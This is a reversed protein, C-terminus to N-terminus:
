ESLFYEEQFDQSFVQGGSTKTQLTFNAEFGEAAANFKLNKIRVNSNNLPVGNIELCGDDEKFIASPPDNVKLVSPTSIDISNAGNMAWGIKALLFAGEGQVMTQTDGRGINGIIAFASVFLGSFIVGFLALYIIVEILTFGAPKKM